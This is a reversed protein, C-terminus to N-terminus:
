SHATVAAGTTIPEWWCHFMIKGTAMSVSNVNLKLATKGTVVLDFVASKNKYGLLTAAASSTWIEGSDLGSATTNACLATLAGNFGLTVKASAGAGVLDTTCVPVLVMRVDGTIALVAHSGSTKGDSAFNHEHYVYGGGGVNITTVNITNSNITDNKLTNVSLYEHRM